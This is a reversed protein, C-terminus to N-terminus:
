SPPNNSGSARAPAMSVLKQRIDRLLARIKLENAHGIRLLIKQGASLAELKPDAFEYVVKTQVLRPPEEIEPTALLHDIVEVLRDNFYKGPYGLTEYQEQFLPYFRVYLAVAADTSVADALRVYPLYRDANKGSLVLSEGNKVTVPLGRAPKLPILRPAVHDRPLNDVTAVIRHVINELYLLDPLQGGFLAALADRLAGDSEALPPLPNEPADVPEVPHRVAPEAAPAREAVPEPSLEQSEPWFYWGALAGLLVLPTLWLLVSKM